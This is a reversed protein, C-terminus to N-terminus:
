DNAVADAYSQRYLEPGFVAEDAMDRVVWDKNVQTKAGTNYVRPTATQYVRYKAPFMEDDHCITFDRLKDALKPIRRLGATRHAEEAM